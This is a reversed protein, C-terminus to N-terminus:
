YQIFRRSRAAGKDREARVVSRWERPPKEPMNNKLEDNLACPLFSIVRPDVRCATGQGVVFGV